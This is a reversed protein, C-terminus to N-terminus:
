HAYREVTHHVEISEVGHEGMFYSVILYEQNYQHNADENGNQECIDVRLDM